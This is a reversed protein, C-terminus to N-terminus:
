QTTESHLKHRFFPEEFVYFQYESRDFTIFKAIEPQSIYHKNTIKFDSHQKTKYAQRYGYIEQATIYTSRLQKMKLDYGKNLKKSFFTFCKSAIKEMTKRTSGDTAIIYEDSYLKNNMGKEILFDELEKIIPIYTFELEDPNIRNALRNIKINPSKLYFPKDNEFIIMNWKMKFIEENRRGTYAKLKIADILWNRYMNRQTKGIKQVSNEPVIVDLLEFFDDAAITNNTSKEPKLRIEKFPNSIAYGKENILFSYLSRMVKINDNFTYASKTKNSLYDYYEGLLIENIDTIKFAEINVGKLKIFKNFNNLLVTKIEIYEKSNHKQKHAPVDIDQLFDVYMRMCDRLLQPKHTPTPKQIKDSLIDSRYDILEKVAEDYTRAKLTTTKRKGDKFVIARYATNEIPHKCSNYPSHDRHITKNCKLCRIELGKFKRYSLREM